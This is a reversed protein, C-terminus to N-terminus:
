GAPGFICGARYGYKNTIRGTGTGKGVEPQSL